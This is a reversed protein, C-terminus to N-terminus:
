LEFMIDAIGYVRNAEVSSPFATSNIFRARVYTVASNFSVNAPPAYYYAHSGVGPRRVSVVYNAGSSLVVPSALTGEVWEATASTIAVSGLLTTDSVRWLRLEESAAGASYLRLKTVTLDSAGVTFEWGFQLYGSFSTISGLATIGAEEAGGGDGTQRGAAGLLARFAVTM